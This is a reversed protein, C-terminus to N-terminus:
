ELKIMCRPNAWPLAPAVFSWYDSVGQGMVGGAIQRVLADPNSTDRFYYMQVDQLLQSSSGPTYYSSINVHNDINTLPDSLWHSTSLHSSYAHAGPIYKIAEWVNLNMLLYRYSKVEPSRLSITRGNCTNFSQTWTYNAINGTISKDIIAKESHVYYHNLPPVALKLTPTLLDQSVYEGANLGPFRENTFNFSPHYRIATAKLYYFKSNELGSFFAKWKGEVDDGRIDFYKTPASLYLNDLLSSTDALYVRVGVVQGLTANVPSFVPSSISVTKNDLAEVDEYTGILLSSNPLITGNLHFWISESASRTVSYYWLQLANNRMIDGDINTIPLNLYDFNAKLYVRLYCSATTTNNFGKEHPPITPNNEDDGFFCPKSAEATISYNNTFITTYQHGDPRIDYEEELPIVSTGAPNANSFGRLNNQSLYRQYSLLLSAKTEEENTIEIKKLAGPNEQDFYIETPLNNMRTDPFTLRYSDRTIPNSTPTAKYNIIQSPRDAVLKGPAKPVLSLRINQNFYEYNASRYILTLQLLRDVDSSRPQYKYTITCSSNAALTAGVVCTTEAAVVNLSSPLTAPLYDTINTRVRYDFAYLPHASDNKVTIRRKAYLDNATPTHPIKISELTVESTAPFNFWSLSKDQPAQAVVTPPAGENGIVDFKTEQVSLRPHTGTTLINALFLFKYTRSKRNVQLQALNSPSESGNYIAPIFHEGSDINIEMEYAHVGAAHTATDLRFRVSLHNNSNIVTPIAVPSVSYPTLGSGTGPLVAGTRATIRLGHTGNNTIRTTVDQMGSSQPFTGLYYIYDYNNKQTNFVPLAQAPHRAFGGKIFYPYYNLPDVELTNYVTNAGYFWTEPITQSAHIPQGTALAPLIFEPRYVTATLLPIINTFNLKRSWTSAHDISFNTSTFSTGFDPHTAAPNSYDGDFYRFRINNWATGSSQRCIEWLEKPDSARFILRKGEDANVLTAGCTEANKHRRQDPHKVKVTYVCSEGSPLPNFLGTRLSPDVSPNTDGSLNTDVINLCDHQAGLSLYDPTPHLSWSFNPNSSLSTPPNLAQIYSLPGTGINRLYLYTIVEDNISVRGTSDLGGIRPTNKNDSILDRLMGKRVLIATLHAAKEHLPYDQADLRNEDTFKSGSQYSIFFSKLKRTPDLPDTSDFMNADEEAGSAMGVAAFNMSISCQNGPEIFTCTADNAMVSKYFYPAKAGLQVGSGGIVIPRNMGDRLSVNSARTLGENKFTILLSETKAYEAIQLTIRKLDALDPGGPTHQYIPVGAYMISEVIVRAATTSKASIFSLKKDVITEQDKFLADYTVGIPLGQFEALMPTLFSTSPQFTIDFNCSQAVQIEVKNTEDSLCLNRDIISFPLQSLPLPTLSADICKLLSTEGKYCNALLTNDQNFISLKNLYGSRLGINRISILRTDRNGPIIEQDFIININSTTFKAEINASLSQFYANLAGQSGSSSTEYLINVVARYYVQKIEEIFEPTAGPPDQNLPTYFVNVQCSENKALISPCNHEMRYAGFMGAPCVSTEVSACTEALSLIVNKASLGGVNKIEFEQHHGQADAREVVPESKPGAPTGFSYLTTNNTFALSAPMGALFQVTALHEELEVYQKYSLKIFETFIREERPNVELIITCSKKPALTRSCTGGLGPFNLAGDATALYNTSSSNDGSASFTLDIETYPFNTGNFVRVELTKPPDTLLHEGLDIVKGSADRGNISFLAQDFIDATLVSTGPKKEVCSAILLLLLLPLIRM